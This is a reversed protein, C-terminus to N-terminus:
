LWNLLLGLRSVASSRGRSSLQKEIQDKEGGSTEKRPPQKVPRATGTEVSHFALDTWGVKGSADVFCDKYSLLLHVAEKTESLSLSM